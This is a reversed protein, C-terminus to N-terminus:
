RRTELVADYTAAVTRAMPASALRDRAVDLAREAMGARRDPDDIVVGVLRALEDHDGEPFVLGTVEPVVQQAAAAPTCLVVVGCLMAEDVLETAGESRSPLVLADAAWLVRRSDEYGLLRVRDAVDLEAARQRVAAESPGQGALLAVVERGSRALSAVADVITDPRKNPNLSGVFAVVAQGPRVGFRERASAREEVSPPRFHAADAGPPLITVRDAEVGYDRGLLTAIDTSVAIAHSGVTRAWVPNRTPIPNHVTSIFPVGTLLRVMVAYLGMQRSHCHVVTPRHRKVARIVRWLAVPALLLRPLDAPRRIGAPFPAKVHRVGAREYDEPGPARSATTAGPPSDDLQLPGGSCVTVDWGLARLERALTLMHVNIGGDGLYPALFLVRKRTV